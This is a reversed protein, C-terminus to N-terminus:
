EATPGLRAGVVGADRLASLGGDRLAEVCLVCWRASFNPPSNMSARKACHWFDSPRVFAGQGADSPPRGCHARPALAEDLDAAELM